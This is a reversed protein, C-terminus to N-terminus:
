TRKQKQLRASVRSAAAWRSLARRTMTYARMIPCFRESGALRVEVLFNVDFGHRRTAQGDPGANV